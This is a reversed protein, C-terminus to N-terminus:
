PEFTGKTTIKFDLSVQYNEVYLYSGGGLLYTIGTSTIPQMAVEATFDVPVSFIFNNIVTISFNSNISNNIGFTSANNFNRISIIQGNVLNHAITGCDFQAPNTGAIWRQPANSQITQQTSAYAVTSFEGLPYTIIGTKPSPSIEASLDYPITFTNLVANSITYGTNVMISNNIGVSSGNTFNKFFVRMGNVLGHNITTTITTPNATSFSTVQLQDNGFSHINGYKNFIQISIKEMRAKSDITNVCTYVENEMIQIFMKTNTGDYDVRILDTCLIQGNTTYVNNGKFEKVNLYLTPNNNLTSSNPIYGGLLRGSLLKEIKQPLTVVFNCSTSNTNYDRDLSNITYIYEGHTQKHKTKRDNKSPHIMMHM